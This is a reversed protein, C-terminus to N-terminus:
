NLSDFLEMSGHLRNKNCSPAKGQSPFDYRPPNCQRCIYKRFGVQADGYDSRTDTSTLDELSLVKAIAKRSVIGIIKGDQYVM